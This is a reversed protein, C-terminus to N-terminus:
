TTLDKSRIRPPKTRSAYMLERLKPPKRKDLNQAIVDRSGRVQTCQEEFGENKNWKQTHIKQIQSNTKTKTKQHDIQNNTNYYSSRRDWM